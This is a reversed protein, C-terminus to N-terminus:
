DRAPQTLARAALRREFLLPLVMLLPLARGLASVLFVERYRLGLKALLYSGLLAGALQMLGGLSASM